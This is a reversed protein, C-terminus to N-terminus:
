IFPYSPAEIGMARKQETVKKMVYIFVEAKRRNRQSKSPNEAGLGYANTQSKKAKKAVISRWVKRFKRKMKRAEEPSLSSLIRDIDDTSHKIPAIGLELFAAMTLIDNIENNKMAEKERRDSGV